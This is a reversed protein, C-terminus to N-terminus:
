TAEKGTSHSDSGVCLAREYAEVVARAVTPRDARETIIASNAEAARDVLADDGLALRLAKEIAVSDEPPVLYGNAGNEIWEGTSVTDSQIPFAGLAMAELLSNPTGDTTGVALSIRSQGMLDLIQEHPVRTLCRISLGSVARIHGAEAKVYPTAAYVVIEYDRLVDACRHVAQLAILARGGWLDNDYGKVVITRRDGVSGAMRHRGIEERDLGGGGPFVGLVEGSFGNELALRVDRRCDAMLFACTRLVKRIREAHEPQRGFHYIDSGWVSYIWPPFRERMARRCALTLYGARQMELSHVIDPRVRRIASALLRARNGGGWGLQRLLMQVRYSGRRLPWLGAVRVSPDLGDPRWLGAGHLTLDHLAPHHDRRRESAFLHLDWGTGHLQDIWRATTISDSLAVFLIRM